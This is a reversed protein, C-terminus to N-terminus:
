KGHATIEEAIILAGRTTAGDVPGFAEDVAIKQIEAVDPHRAIARDICSPLEDLSEAVEGLLWGAYRRDGMWKVGHANIFVAPRPHVLFEYLQSSVDGLYIDATLTYSMDTLRPSDLDVIVREPSALSDWKRRESSKMNESARIHPAFVINCETQELITKIVKDAIPLSSAEPDFHPNYLITPRQNAFLGPLDRKINKFFDLKVYGCIRIKEQPYGQEVARISDKEGPLAVIDFASLRRESEPARDGAGHRFHIMLADNLGMKRLITSTREPTVIAAAKRLRKLLSFLLPRKRSSKRNFLASLLRGMFPTEVLEIRVSAASLAERVYQLASCTRRDAAICVVDREPLLRSLEAAVPALHHIQHEGGIFLFIIEGSSGTTQEPNATAIPSNSYHQKPATKMENGNTCCLSHTKLTM